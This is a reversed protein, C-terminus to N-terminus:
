WWHAYLRLPVPESKLFPLFFFNYTFFPFFCPEPYACQNRESVAYYETGPQARVTGYPHLYTGQARTCRSALWLSILIRYSRVM